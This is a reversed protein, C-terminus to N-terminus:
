LDFEKLALDFFDLRDSFIPLTHANLVTHGWSETNEFRIFNNALNPLEFDLFDGRDISPWHFFLTQDSKLFPVMNAPLVSETIARVVDPKQYENILLMGTPDLVKISNQIDQSVSEFTKDGDVIILDYQKFDFDQSKIRHLEVRHQLDKYLQDFLKIKPEPDVCTIHADGSELLLGCTQGEFFGIELINKYQYKKLITFYLYADVTYRMSCKSVMPKYLSYNKWFRTQHLKDTM